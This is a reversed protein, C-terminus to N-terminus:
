QSFTGILQLRVVPHLIHIDPILPDTGHVVISVIENPEEVNEKPEEKVEEENTESM